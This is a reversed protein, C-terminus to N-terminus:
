TPMQCKTRPDCTPAPAGNDALQSSEVGSTVKPDLTPMQCKTRPDCTPAPAGNDALVISQQVDGNAMAQGSNLAAVGAMVAVGAVAVRIASYIIKEMTDAGRIHM